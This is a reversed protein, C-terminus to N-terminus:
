WFKYNSLNTWSKRKQEEAKALRAAEEVAKKQEKEKQKQVKLERMLEVAQKMGDIEKVRRRQCLEHAVISAIAFTGVAWNCAPWISSLGTIYYYAL